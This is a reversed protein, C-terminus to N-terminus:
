KFFSRRWGKEELYSVAEPSDDEYGKLRIIITGAHNGSVVYIVAEVYLLGGDVELGLEPFIALHTPLEVWRELECEGDETDVALWLLARYTGM